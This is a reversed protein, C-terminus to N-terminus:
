YSNEYNKEGLFKKYLNVFISRKKSDKNINEVQKIFNVYAIKFKKYEDNEYLYYTNLITRLETKAQEWAMARLLRVKEITM